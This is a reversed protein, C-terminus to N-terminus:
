DPTWADQKNIWPWVAPLVGIDKACLILIQLQNEREFYVFMVKLCLSFIYLKTGLIHVVFGVTEQFWYYPSLLVPSYLKFPYRKSV